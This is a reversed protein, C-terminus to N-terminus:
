GAICNPWWSGVGTNPWHASRAWAKGVESIRQPKHTILNAFAGAMIGISTGAFLVGYQAASLGVTGVFYLFSGSVYAFLAGFGAANVLM